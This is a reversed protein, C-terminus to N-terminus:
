RRGVVTGAKADLDVRKSVGEDTLIILRYILRTGREVLHADLVRASFLTRVLKAIDSLPLAEGDVVADLAVNQDSAAAAGAPSLVTDDSGGAPSATVSGDSGGGTQGTDDTTGKDHGHANGNDYGIANGNGANASASAVAVVMVAILGAHRMARLTLRAPRFLASLGPRAM